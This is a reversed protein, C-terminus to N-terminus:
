RVHQESLLFMLLLKGCTNNTFYFGPKCVCTKEMCHANEDLCSSSVNCSESVAVRKAVFM